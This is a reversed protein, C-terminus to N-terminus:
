LYGEARLFDKVKEVIVGHYESQGSNFEYTIPRANWALVTQLIPGDLLEGPLAVALVAGPGLPVARDVQIEVTARRDDGPARSEDRIMAVYHSTHFDWVPVNLSDSVRSRFYRENTGFFAGVIRSAMELTPDVLFDEKKMDPHFYQKFVGKEFAGTDFPAVRHVKPVHNPDVLLCVPVQSIMLRSKEGAITRYAPRGYFFYLLYEGGFVECPATRLQGEQSISHFTFAEFTHALPLVPKAEAAAKVFENLFRSM